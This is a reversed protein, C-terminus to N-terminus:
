TFLRGVNELKISLVSPGDDVLVQGIFAVKVRVKMNRAAIIHANAKPQTDDRPWDGFM